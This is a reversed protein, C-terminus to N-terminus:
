ESGAFPRVRTVLLDRFADPEEVMPWHASRELFHVEKHPAQIRAFNQEVVAPPIVLDRRGNFIFVPLRLILEADTFKVAAMEENITTGTQPDRNILRYLDLPSYAPSLRLAENFRKSVAPDYFSGGFTGVWKRQVNLKARHGEKDSADITYPYPALAKLEAIAETNGTRTAEALVAEYGMREEANRDIIQGVGVYAYFLDPYKAVLRLGIISGWSHAVVGIKKQGTAQAVYKAVAYADEVYTEIVQGAPIPATGAPLARTKGAQRQDWQAVTFHHEWGPQFMHAWPMMPMGPGGHIFLLAPNERKQGRIQVFQAFGNVVPSELTDIGTQKNIAISKALSARETWACAGPIAAGLGALM